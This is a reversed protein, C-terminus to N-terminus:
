FDMGHNKMVEKLSVTQNKGSRIDELRKESLYVDEIEELNEIGTQASLKELRKEIENPLRISYAM